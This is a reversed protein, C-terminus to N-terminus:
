ALIFTDQEFVVICHRRHPKFGRGRRRSNLVRGSLWQTGEEIQKMCFYCAKNEMVVYFIYFFSDDAETMDPAKIDLVCMYNEASSLKLNQQKEFIVFLAHSKMLITQQCVIRMFYRVKNKDCVLLSTANNTTQQLRSQSKLM